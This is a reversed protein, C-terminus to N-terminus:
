ERRGDRTRAGSVGDAAPGARDQLPPASAQAGGAILPIISPFRADVLMKQEPGLIEYLAKAATSVDELATLRNRVRDVARNMQQMANPQALSQAPARERAIDEAVAHVRGAFPEWAKLQAPSLKLDEELM